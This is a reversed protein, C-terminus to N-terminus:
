HMLNMHVIIVAIPVAHGTGSTRAAHMPIEYEGPESMIALIVVSVDM